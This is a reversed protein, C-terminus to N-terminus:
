SSQRWLQRLEQHERATWACWSMMLHQPKESKRSRSFPTYVIPRPLARDNAGPAPLFANLAQLHMQAQCSLSSILIAGGFSTLSPKVEEEAMSPM